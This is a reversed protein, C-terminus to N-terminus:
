ISCSKTDVEVIKGRPTEEEFIQGEFRYIETDDMLWCDPPMGAKMCTQSLFEESDFGFEVAVQPLLLGSYLGKRVMLGHRGVEVHKPLEIGKANIKEPPTLITVEVTIEDMEEIKVPLFRPDEVASAIASDIIAIDLRKHPYPFGICGRLEKNKRLTVFVGRKESFVGNYRTDIVKREKLYTEIADRALRVAKVGDDISLLKAM